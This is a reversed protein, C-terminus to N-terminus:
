QTVRKGYYYQGVEVGDFVAIDPLHGWQHFGYKELLYVSAKNTDLLIAFLTKIDLSPCLELARELLSSAAGRRHYDFDIYYSVEATHRLAERGPRYPSISLYGIVKSSDEAVLIHFKSGTNDDFWHKRSEVTVPTLDATKMGAQVAQNYIGTIQQLDEPKAKRIKM